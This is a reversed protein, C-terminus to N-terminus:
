FWRKSFSGSFNASRRPDLSVGRLLTQKRLCRRALQALRPNRDRHVFEVFRDSTNARADTKRRCPFYYVRDDRSRKKGDSSNSVRAERASKKKTILSATYYFFIQINDDITWNNLYNLPSSNLPEKLQVTEKKNVLSINNNFENDM